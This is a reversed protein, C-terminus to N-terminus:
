RVRKCFAAYDEATDIGPPNSDVVAVKITCGADLARLQELREMKELASPPLSNYKQLFEARYGYIGIHHFGYVRRGAIQLVNADAAERVFPIPARSFYLAKGCNGVIVKVINPKLWKEEDYIPTALTSMEPARTDDTLLRATKVIYEPNIEPEDAQLKVIYQEKLSRAAEAIRDTGSQHNPDTMVARAGAREAVTILKTDDAAVLINTILGASLKQAERARDLTYELITKGAAELLLKNALRTSALRAPLVVAVSM